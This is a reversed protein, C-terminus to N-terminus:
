GSRGRCRLLGVTACDIEGGMNSASGSSKRLRPYIGQERLVLSAASSAGCFNRGRCIAALKAADCALPEYPVDRSIRTQDQHVHIQSVAASRRAGTADSRHEGNLYGSEAVSKRMRIAEAEESGGVFGDDLSSNRM